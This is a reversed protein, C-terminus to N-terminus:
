EVREYAGLDPAIDLLRSIGDKDTPFPAAIDANGIDKAPSLTDLHYDYPSSVEIFKPNQNTINNSFFLLNSSDFLPDLKLLCNDFFFDSQADASFDFGLESERNGYVICNGFYAQTLDRNEVISQNGMNYTYYNNLLLQPTQRNGSWFNALTCHNFSYNGGIVCAVTYQGANAFVCNYAEVHAGLAYLCAVNMNEISSNSLVLTPTGPTVVSDVQLGIIGNKIIAHDIRNNRSGALLHIGGFIGLVTNNEDTLYAGWQGPLESYSYELRDGSFLVPQEASGHVLLTGKVLLSSGNHFYVSAGPDISLTTFTDVLASNYILVPKSATWTTDNSIYQGNILCVNQGFAVLKVDQVNGNSIFVVSDIEIMDDVDPDITVEVFVFISDGPPIVIDQQSFSQDGNINIRFNSQNQKALFIREINIAQSKNSNHVTFFKTTSGISTFITDFQLTDGSFALRDTPSTTYQNKNCSALFLTGLLAIIVGAAFLKKM